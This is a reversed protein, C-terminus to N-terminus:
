KMAVGALNNPCQLFQKTSGDILHMLTGVTLAQQEESIMVINKTAPFDGDRGGFARNRYSIYERILFVRIKNLFTSSLFDGFSFM